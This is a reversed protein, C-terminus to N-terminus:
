RGIRETFWRDRMRHGVKVMHAVTGKAADHDTEFGDADEWRRDYQDYAKLHFEGTERDKCIAVRNVYRKLM